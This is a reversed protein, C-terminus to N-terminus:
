KRITKLATSWDIVENLMNQITEEHFEAPKFTRMEEFDPFFSFAPQTGVTAVKPVTLILRLNNAATVGLTSGYSVIGAAKNSWEPYLYDIADKLGSTVGKNYEPTVSVFGDLANIKESWVKAEPTQYDQSMIALIPENFKPLNYDKIDVLKFEADPRQDAINEGM